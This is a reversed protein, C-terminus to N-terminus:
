LERYLDVSTLRGNDDRLSIFVAVHGSQEYGCTLPGLALTGNAPLRTESLKDPTWHCHEGWGHDLGIWLGTVTAPVGALETLKVTFVYSRQGPTGQLSVELTVTVAPRVRVESTGRVGTQNTFEAIIIAEGRASLEATVVGSQSVSVVSDDSSRWSLNPMSTVSKATGDAQHISAVFQASQGAAIAYPGIVVIYVFPSPSPPTPTLPSPDDGCAVFLGVAVIALSGYLVTRRRM